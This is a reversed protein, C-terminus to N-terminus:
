SWESIFHILADIAPRNIRYYTWKGVRQAELLKAQLMLKLFGSCVSQSIGAKQQITSVCAGGWDPLGPDGSESFDAFSEKPDALWQMIQLRTSNALAKLMELIDTQTYNM